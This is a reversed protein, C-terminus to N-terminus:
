DTKDERGSCRIRHNHSARRIKDKSGKSGTMVARNSRVTRTGSVRRASHVIPISRGSRDALVVRVRHVTRGKTLLGNRVNRSRSDKPVPHVNRIAQRNRVVRGAKILRAHRAIRFNRVTRGTTAVRAHRSARVSRVIRARGFIARHNTQPILRNRKRRIILDKRKKGCSAGASSGNWPACTATTKRRCLVSRTAWQM